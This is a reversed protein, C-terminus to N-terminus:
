VRRPEQTMHAAEEDNSDSDQTTAKAAKEGAKQKAERAKRQEENREKMWKPMKEPHLQFCDKAHHAKGCHSCTPRDARGPHKQSAKSSPRGARAALGSEKVMNATDRRQQETRYATAIASRTVTGSLTIHSSLIDNFEDKELGLLSFYAAMSDVVDKATMGSTFSAYLRDAALEIRQHYATLPENTNQSTCALEQFLQFQRSSNQKNHTTFLTDWADKSDMGDILQYNAADVSKLIAGLAAGEAIRYANQLRLEALDTSDQFGPNVYTGLICGLAGDSIIQAKTLRAWETYNGDSLIVPKSSM